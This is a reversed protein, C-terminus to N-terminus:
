AAAGVPGFLDPRMVSRPIAGDTAREIGAAMEGSIRTAEHLLYSIQQQSCGMAEALKQQSGKLRVAEEVHRRFEAM